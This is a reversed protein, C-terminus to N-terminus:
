TKDLVFSGRVDFAKSCYSPSPPVFAKSTGYPQSYSLSVTGAEYLPQTAWGAPKDSSQFAPSFWAPVRTDDNNIYITGVGAAFQIVYELRPALAAVRGESGSGTM